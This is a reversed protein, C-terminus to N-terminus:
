RNLPNVSLHFKQCTSGSEGTEQIQKLFDKNIEESRHFGPYYSSGNLPFMKKTGHTLNGKMLPVIKSGM